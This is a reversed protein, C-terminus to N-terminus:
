ETLTKDSSYYDQITKLDKQVSAPLWSPFKSPTQATTEAEATPAPKATPKTLGPTPSANASTRKALSDAKAKKGAEEMAAQTKTMNNQAVSQRSRSIGAYTKMEADTMELWAKRIARILGAHSNHRELAVDCALVGQERTAGGRGPYPIIDVIQDPTVRAHKGDVTTIIVTKSTAAAARYELAIVPNGDVSPYPDYFFVGEIRSDKVGQALASSGLSVVLIALASLPVSLTKVVKDAEV